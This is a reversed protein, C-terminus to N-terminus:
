RASGVVARAARAIVVDERSHVVLTRVAARETSVDADGSPDANHGPDIEMGLFDLRRAIEARVRASGEGVGGTFVVADLGGLSAAMAAVTGALRHDHVALALAAADTM